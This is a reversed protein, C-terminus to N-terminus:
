DASASKFSSEKFIKKMSDIQEKCSKYICMTKKAIDLLDSEQLKISKIPREEEQSSLLEKLFADELAESVVSEIDAGNFGEKHCLKAIESILTDQNRKKLHVKFIEECEKENPLNVCFIEDFRGKRKLEPPLNEASNATAIVYVPSTKDQMWTLFYGFMRMLVDNGSNSGVGALAKEIEDIWLVCPAAAEAIRIARRLNEESQGVYKGMMSGMDLKLLPMKFQAAAAKACLSKGCGPMGVIFIGKPVDVKFSKALELNNLIDTKKSLYDKLVKLGGIDEPKEKADVLELLGSKKVQAKKQRLIMEKDGKELNGNLSMAMDITRDIEFLSLGRLSPMLENIVDDEATTNNAELHANIVNRIEEESPFPIELISVYPAIEQPINIHPCSIIITTNYPCQDYLRRQAIHALLSKIQPSDIEDQIERLLVFDTNSKEFDARYVSRLFEELTSPTDGIPQKSSFRVEGSAPNWERISSTSIAAKILEDIRVFDYDEIYIIPINVDVMKQFESVVSNAM